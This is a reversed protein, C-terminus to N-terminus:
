DSEELVVRWRRPLAAFAGQYTNELPVLVHAGPELFLPMDALQDGVAVPEVYARVTLGSEYAALTLPKNAPAVYDQGTIEEWIAGHIGHPDRPTPPNLDLILLHIRQDLLEAAKEM